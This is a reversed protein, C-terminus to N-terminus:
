AKRSANPEPHDALEQRARDMDANVMMRVLDKFETRPRWGLVEAALTPDALTLHPDLPRFFEPDVKVFESADLELEAFAMEVFDGVRSAQGSGIVFDMPDSHQLMLWMSEVYDAAFGWDRRADLNGLRLETQLGLKIRAAARTIKRTVFHEPRRPSEHNFLIGSCAFTNYNERYNEVVHHAFTKAVAYPNCPKFPTIETQPSVSARGFVESSGAQYFRATPHITRIAELFRLPTQGTIESTYIPQQWSMPVFSVAALNYIEDPRVSDVLLDISAQDRLDTGHLRVDGALHAIGARELVVSAAESSPRVAGHVAYGKAVLFEALYSGDQGTIGTILATPRPKNQM